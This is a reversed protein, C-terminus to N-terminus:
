PTPRSPSLTLIATAIAWLVSIGAMLRLEVPVDPAFLGPLATLANIIVFGVIVRLAARSGTRWAVAVAVLGVVGLAAGLLLIFFPPGVEGEPTPFLVSVTSLAFFVGALILGVRQRSGLLPRTARAPMATSTPASTTM